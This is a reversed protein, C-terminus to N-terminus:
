PTRPRFGPSSLSSVTGCSIKARDGFSQPFPPASVDESTQGGKYLPPKGSFHLERRAALCLGTKRVSPVPAAPSVPTSLLKQSIFTALPPFVGKGGGGIPLTRVVITRNPSREPPPLPWFEPAPKERSRGRGPWSTHGAGFPFPVGRVGRCAKPQTLYSLFCFASSAPM